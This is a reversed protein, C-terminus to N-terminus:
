RQEGKTGFVGAPLSTMANDNLTVRTLVTNTRFLGAPMGTIRNNSLYRPTCM